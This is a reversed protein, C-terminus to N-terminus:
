QNTNQGENPTHEGLAKTIADRTNPNQLLSFLSSNKKAIDKNQVAKKFVQVVPNNAGVNQELSSAVDNLVNDPLNYVNRTVQGLGSHSVGGYVQGAVNAIKNVGAKASSGIGGLFTKPVSTTQPNYGLTQNALAFKDAKNLMGQEFQDLNGIGIKEMLGPNQSELDKLKQMSLTFARKNQVGSQGPSTLDNLISEISQALKTPAGSIDGLYKNNYESPLGKGMLTEPGAQSFASFQGAAKELGPVAQYEKQSMSPLVENIYNKLDPNSDSVRDALDYLGKRLAFSQNPTLSEPNTAAHEVLIGIGNKKALFPNQKLYDSIGQLDDTHDSVDVKSGQEEAADRLASMQKGLAQRGGLLKGTVDSIDNVQQNSIQARTTETQNLPNGAVGEEFALKPQRLNPNNAIIKGLASQADPQAEEAAQGAAKAGSGLLGAVKESAASGLVNLPAGIAGGLLTDKLIQKNGEESDINGKSTAAANVAGIGAGAAARNALTAGASLGEGGLGLGSGLGATLAGLGLAGTISGAGYAYPHEKYAQENNAIYEAQHQRYADHWKKAEPNKLIDMGAEIAPVAETSLGLTGQKLAGRGFAQAEALRKKLKEPDITNDQKIAEGITMKSTPQSQPELHQEFAQDLDEKKPTPNAELHADFQKDLDDM